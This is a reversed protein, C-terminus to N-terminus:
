FENLVLTNSNENIIFINDKSVVSMNNIVNPKTGLSRDFKIIPLPKQNKIILTDIINNENLNLWLGCFVKEEGVKAKEIPKINKFSETLGFNEIKITGFNHNEGSIYAATRKSNTILLNEITINQPTNLFGHILLSAQNYTFRPNDAGSNLIKLDGFTINTSGSYISVGRNPDNHLNYKENSIVNAKQINIDSSNKFFIMDLVFVEGTINASNVGEFSLKGQIVTNNFEININKKNQIILNIQYYGSPFRVKVGNSALTLISDVQEKNLKSDKFGYRRIDGYEFRKDKIWAFENFAFENSNPIASKEVKENSSNCSFFLIIILYSKFIYKIM